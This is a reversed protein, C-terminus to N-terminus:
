IHEEIVPVFVSRLWKDGITAMQKCDPAIFSCFCLICFFYPFFTRIANYPGTSDSNLSMRAGKHM